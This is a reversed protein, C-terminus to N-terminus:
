RCREGDSERGRLRLLAGGELLKWLEAGQETMRHQLYIKFDQDRSFATDLRTLAGGERQMVELEDRYFFDCESKQAGFFLWNGGNAGTVKREQLFARFPAIGTGPGVM